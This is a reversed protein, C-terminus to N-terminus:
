RVTLRNIGSKARQDLTEKYEENPMGLCQKFSAIAKEKEGRKEYIFGMQLAARAAYYEPLKQGGAIAAKYLLLAQDEQGMEDRIRALFYSYKVKNELVHYDKVSKTLLKQLAEEFYGGTFLLRAQLIVPEPWEGSKVERMAVKDADAVESGRSLVRKRYEEAAPRNGKLYYAASIKYLADKAYLQGKYNDLFRKFERIAGDLNLHYMYATALEYHMVPLDMYSPNAQRQKLIEMARAASHDNLYLNAAMFAYLANNKLDLNRNKIVAIAKDPQHKLYFIMYVYYFVAEQKFFDGEPHQKNLFTHMLDLGEVISGNKFGLLRTAWRYNAPISGVLAKMPGLVIKNPGFDPFKKQNDIIQLYARRIDWFASVKDGFKYKCAGTQLHVISQLFLYYPSSTPGSKLQALRKENGSLYADYDGADGNFLLKFAAIYNELFYPVLNDPHTKREREILRQANAVKLQIIHHYALQCNENFDFAPQATLKVASLLVLALVLCPRLFSLM